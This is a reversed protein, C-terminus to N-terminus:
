IADPDALLQEANDVAVGRFIYTMSVAIVGSLLLALYVYYEPLQLITPLFSVAFISLAYPIIPAIIAAGIAVCLIFGLLAWKPKVMKSVGFIGRPEAAKIGIAVSIASLSFILFVAELLTVAIVLAPPRFVIGGIVSCILTISLAFFSLFFIKAKAISKASIPSSFLYWISNGELTTLLTGLLPLMMLGPILTILVFLFSYGGMPVPSTQPARLVNFFVLMLMSIPFIFIFSLEHRRTVTKFEKKMLAAEVTSFGLKAFLSQKPMYVGSSLRITPLQYLGFRTNVYTAVYFIAAIFGLSALSFLFAEMWLNSAFASLAMGPWVYPIFWLMRQGGAVAEFLLTPTVQNIISYYVAYFVIMAGISFALRLWIASRGAGKTVAGLLRLQLTKFVETTASALLLSASLALVTLIAIPIIGMFVSVTLVASSILITIALPLGLLSSIISALTHEKWSIPFWYMPQVSVKAGMRQVQNIQTFVVGYLLVITPITVLFYKAGDLVASQMTQSSASYFNGILGGAIIGILCALLYMGYTFLKNEQYRRLKSEQITRKAKRNVSILLLVTKWNM